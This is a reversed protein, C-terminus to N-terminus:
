RSLGGGHRLSQDTDAACALVVELVQIQVDAGPLERHDRAGAARALGAQHEIRQVGFALAAIHLGETGIRALEQVAHVLRGHVLHLAHRRGDGDVLGVRHAARAGRHARHGLEVVVEFQQERAGALQEVALGGLRHAVVAGLGDVGLQLAAACRAAVRADHQGERHFQRGVGRGLLDFLPQRGAAEGLHLGLTLHGRGGARALQQVHHGVAEAQAIGLLRAHDLGDFHGQLTARAPEVDVAQGIRGLGLGFQPAKGRAQVAGVAVQAVALGDGRHEREIGGHAGALGAATEAAHDPHVIAQDDGVVLEGQARARDLGDLGRGPLLRLIVEHAVGLGGADRAVRGPVLEGLLLLFPDDAARGAVLFPLPALLPIADLAEELVQLALGVLHVDAHQQGLVAAVRRAGGTGTRAELGLAQLPADAALVRGIGHELGALAEHGLPHLPAAGLEFGQGAQAQVVQHQQGDVPQPAEEVAHVERGLTGLAIFALGLGQLQQELLDGRAQFVQAVHADAVERQVPLAAGQAAALHLADVQGRRETGRQDVREEHEILGADAQVRAVHVADGLGHQAQAIGAVGQHHHLVVRGHHQRGVAHDVHAGARAAQAPLDGEVAGRGVQALGVCEGTGVQAPALVHAKAELAHHGFGRM